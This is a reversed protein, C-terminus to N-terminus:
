PISVRSRQGPETVRLSWDKVYEVKDYTSLYNRSRTFTTLQPSNLFDTGAMEPVAAILREVDKATLFDPALLTFNHTWKGKEDRTARLGSARFHLPSGPPIPQTGPTPLLSDFCGKPGVLIKFDSTFKCRDGRQM